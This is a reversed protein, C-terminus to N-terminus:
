RYTSNARDEGSPGLSASVALTSTLTPGFWHRRLLPAHWLLLHLLMLLLQFCFSFSDGRLFLFTPCSRHTRQLMAGASRACNGIGFIAGAVAVSSAAATCWKITCKWVRWTSSVRWSTIFSNTGNKDIPLTLLLAPRFATLITIDTSLLQPCFSTVCPCYSKHCAHEWRQCKNTRQMRNKITISLRLSRNVLYHGQSVPGPGSNIYRARRACQRLKLLLHPAYGPCLDHLLILQFHLLLRTTSPPLQFPPPTKFQTTLAPLIQRKSTNDLRWRISTCTLRGHIHAPFYAGEQSHWCWWRDHYHQRAELLCSSSPLTQSWFRVCM